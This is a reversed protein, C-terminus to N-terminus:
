HASAREGEAISESPSLAPTSGARRGISVPSERASEPQREPDLLALLEDRTRGVEELLAKSQDLLQKRLERLGRSGADDLRNTRLELNAFTDRTEKAQQAQAQVRANREDDLRSSLAEVEGRVYAELDSLRRGVEKRVDEVDGGLRGELRALKRELERLQVGFLIERVQDIGNRAQQPTPDNKEAASM